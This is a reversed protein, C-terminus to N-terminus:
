KFFSICMADSCEQDVLALRDACYPAKVLLGHLRKNQSLMRTYQSSHVFLAAFYGAPRTRPLLLVTKLDCGLWGAIM